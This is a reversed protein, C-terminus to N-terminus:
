ATRQLSLQNRQEMLKKHDPHSSDYYGDQNRLENMKANITDNTPISTRTIGKIRDESMDEAINDFLEVMLSNNELKMAAVAEVGGYHRMIANARAVREDKAKGFKKTLAKDAETNATHNAEEAILDNAATVKDLNALHGDAMIKLQVPTLKASKALQFYFTKEDDDGFTSEVGEPQVYEYDKANDPVGRRRHFEARVEDSSDDGPLEVLTDPNKNFKRRLDMHSKVLEPFKKFRSLTPRDAEDYSDSWNETFNGEADIVSVADNDGGGGGGDDGEFRMSLGRFFPNLIPRYYFEDKSNDPGFIPNDPDM